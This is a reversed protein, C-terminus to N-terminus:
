SMYQRRGLANRRQMTPIGQAMRKPLHHKSIGSDILRVDKTDLSLLHEVQGRTPLKGDTEDKYKCNECNVDKGASMVVFASSSGPGSESKKAGNNKEARIRSRCYKAIHGKKKCYFCEVVSRQKQQPQQYKAGSQNKSTM